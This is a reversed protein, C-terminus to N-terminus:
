GTGKGGERSTDTEMKSENKTEEGLAERLQYPQNHLVQPAAIINITHQLNLKTRMEARMWRPDHM